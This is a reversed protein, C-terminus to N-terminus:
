VEKESGEIKCWCNHPYVKAMEEETHWHQTVLPIYQGYQPKYEWKWAKIKKKPLQIHLAPPTQPSGKTQITIERTGEPIKVEHREIIDKEELIIDLYVRM